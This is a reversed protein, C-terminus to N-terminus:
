APPSPTPISPIGNPMINDIPKPAFFRFITGITIGGNDWISIHHNWLKQHKFADEVVYVLQNTPTSLRVIRLKFLRKYAFSLVKRSTDKAKYYKLQNQNKSRGNAIVWLLQLDLFGKRNAVAGDEELDKLDIKTFRTFKKANISLRDIPELINRPRTNRNDNDEDMNNGNDNLEVM